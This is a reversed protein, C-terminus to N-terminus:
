YLFLIVSSVFPHRHSWNPVTCSISTQCHSCITYACGSMQGPSHSVCVGWPNQSVFPDGLRPWVVLYQLLWCFFHLCFSASNYVKSEQNVVFYFQVFTLLFLFYFLYTRSRSLSNFFDHFIFTDTIGTIIPATPITVLPNICSSSSKSILPRTSVIWVVDNKLDTLISLLTWSVQPSKSDSLIRYSVM